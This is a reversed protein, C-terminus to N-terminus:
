HLFMKTNNELFERVEIQSTEEYLHELNYEAFERLQLFKDLIAQKLRTVLTNM